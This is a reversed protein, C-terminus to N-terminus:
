RQEPDMDQRDIARDALVLTSGLSCREVRGEMGYADRLVQPTMAVHPVDDALVEGGALVVVRDCFRLALNLDHIALLAISGCRTALERVVAFVELQWRPDLASTPEDLLMLRTQRVVLQALGVMQRQGGSLEGMRRLALGSLGLRAFVEELVHEADHQSLEPRTARCAAMVVEWAYLSSGTPLSQPLYGVRRRRHSADMRALEEGDLEMRGALAPLQGALTRLLTSKGSANAGVLAILAGDPIPLLNVGSLVRHKGYGASLAEIHLSM